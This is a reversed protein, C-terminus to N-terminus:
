PNCTMQCEVAYKNFLAESYYRSDQGSLWECLHPHHHHGYESGSARALSALVRPWADEALDNNLASFCQSHSFGDKLLVLGLPCVQKGKEHRAVRNRVRSTSPPPLSPPWLPCLCREGARACCCGHHLKHMERSRFKPQSGHPLALVGPFPSALNGSGILASYVGDMEFLLKNHCPKQVTNVLCHHKFLWFFKKCSNGKRKSKGFTDESTGWWVHQCFGVVHGAPPLSREPLFPPRPNVSVKKEAVM